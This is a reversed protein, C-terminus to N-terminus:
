LVEELTTIAAYSNMQSAQPELCHFIPIADSRPLGALHVLSSDDLDCSWRVSHRSLADFVEEMRLDLESQDITLFPQLCISLQGNYKLEGRDFTPRPGCNATKQDFSPYGALLSQVVNPVNWVVASCSIFSRTAVKSDVILPLLNSTLFGYPTVHKFNLRGYSLCLQSLELTHKTNPM